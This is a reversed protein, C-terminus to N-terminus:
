TARGRMAETQLHMAARALGSAASGALGAQWAAEFAPEGLAQRAHELDTRQQQRDAEQVFLRQEQEQLHAAARLEVAAAWRGRRAFVQASLALVHATLYDSGVRPSLAVAEALLPMAREVQDRELATSAVNLLAIILNYGHGDRRRLALVEDALRAAEDAQDAHAAVRALGSLAGIQRRVLGLAVALQQAAQFHSRAQDLRGGSCDVEGAVLRAMLRDSDDGAATARELLQQSRTQSAEHEGTQGLMLALSALASAQAHDFPLAAAREVAPRTLAIGQQMLGRSPWYYRLAAVLRLAAHKGEPDQRSNLWDVARVLNGRDMDLRALAVEGEGRADIDAFAAEALTLYHAAHRHRMGAIAGAEQLRELAFHRVTDLLGYRLTAPAPQTELLSLNALRALGALVDAQAVEPGMLAGVADLDCGGACVALGGLLRQETPQLHDHSWQIVTALTEHRPLARRNGILVRFRQSLLDLLQAPAVVRLQAAALELALPIGDLRRCIEAMVAADSEDVTWGPRAAEARQVLLRVAESQMLEHAPAGHPPLELPRVPVVVEDTLDLAERSTALVRLAPAAALLADVMAAVADLLNECNDIVLLVSRHGLYSAMAELARGQGPLPCGMAQAVTPLLLEAGELPALDVWWVGDIAETLAREALKLALRTKGSGGIGVLTLLRSQALRRRADVLAADRGVFVTREVPLNHRAPGRKLPMTFRYGLGAVTGIAEAGLLKRLLSVQVHVNAEEVVMGPWARELLESKSLREGGAEVLAILVDLARSGLTLAQGDQLLVRETTRLEFPGFHHTPSMNSVLTPRM